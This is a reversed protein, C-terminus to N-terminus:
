TDLDHIRHVEVGWLGSYPASRSREDSIASLRLRRIAGNLHPRPALQVDRRLVSASIMV